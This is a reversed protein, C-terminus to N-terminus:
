SIPQPIRHLAPSFKPMQTAGLCSSSRRSLLLQRAQGRDIRLRSSHELSSSSVWPGFVIFPLSGPSAKLISQVAQMQAPNNAVLPNFFSIPSQIIPNMPLHSSNPFLVRSETFATDLAQHQRRVPIRNLKFRVHYKQSPSWGGFSEHFRLGVEHQHVFHVHGAYWHGQESDKKRVLIRDGQLQVLLDCPTM